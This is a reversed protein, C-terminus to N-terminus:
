GEEGPIASIRRPCIAMLEEVTMGANHAGIHWLNQGVTAAVKLMAQLHGGAAILATWDRALVHAIDTESLGHRGMYGVEDALFAARNNVQRLSLGFATLRHGKLAMEATYVYTGPPDLTLAMSNSM